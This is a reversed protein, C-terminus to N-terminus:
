ARRLLWIFWPAGLFTALLGAPIQYPFIIVRGIGDALLMLGAGAAIAVMLQPMARRFGAMRALHPAMLGIFSLPGVCLTAAAILASALLLILIRSRKLPIGIAQATFSGLPLITLWRALLPTLLLLLLALAATWSAQTATVRYTSGSLWSLVSSIRPDGSVLFLTLFTGYVTSLAVGTLLMRTPSLGGRQALLLIVMLTLAAGLCGAPFQWIVNDGPVLFMLLVMACAAGASVGLVEPSAMANGTMRQILTGAAALMAGAALAAVVRPWRFQWVAQSDVWSSLADGSFLALVIMVVMLLVIAMLLAPTLAREKQRAPSRESGSVQQHRLRTLLWLMVPAGVLATAAGTPIEIWVTALLMVAQDSILLLVAGTLTSLALRAPLRRAGFLRAIVPAFLGIFGIVGAVSVLMASLVVALMLGSFRVLALRMGLNRVVGDELGLLNLPRIMLAILLVALLMRPWLFTVNSWDNQNLMGSSWIFLSQLRDHNFLALLSKVAGCYMGLMLGALILTVPSMRKGSAVLMVLLGIVIAGALTALQQGTEGWSAAYLTALTLGLQAGASVGLTSPEALPNRLIQQFLAGALGLGAGVLLSLLTRPLMSYHFLMQSVDREDPSFFAQRWLPLALQSHFNNFTLLLALLLMLPFILIRM